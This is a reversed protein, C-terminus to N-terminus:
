AALSYVLPRPKCGCKPFLFRFCKEILSNMLNVASELTMVKEGMFRALYALIYNDLDAIQKDSADDSNRAVVLAVGEAVTEDLNPYNTLADSEHQAFHALEHILILNQHTKNEYKDLSNLRIAKTKENYSGDSATARGKHLISRSVIQRKYVRIKPKNPISDLWQETTNPRATM